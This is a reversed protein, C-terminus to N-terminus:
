MNNICVDSKIEIGKELAHRLITIFDDGDSTVFYNSLDTIEPSINKGWPPQKSLDEFNWIVRDCPIKKLEKVILDLENVAAEIDENKLTGHYLENMIVPYRSGWKSEELNYAITSFFSYLFDATGIQYWYFKVSFGVSM